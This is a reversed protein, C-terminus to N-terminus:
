NSPRTDADTLNQMSSPSAVFGHSRILFQIIEDGFVRNPIM